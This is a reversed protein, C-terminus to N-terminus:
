NLPQLDLSEDASDHDSASGDSPLMGFDVAAAFTRVHPTPAKLFLKAQLLMATKFQRCTLFPHEATRAPSAAAHKDATDAFYQRATKIMGACYWCRVDDQPGQPVSGLFRPSSLRPRHDLRSARSDRDVTSSSGVRGDIRNRRSIRPSTPTLAAFTLVKQSDTRLHLSLSPSGVISQLDLLIQSIDSLKPHAPQITILSTGHLDKAFMDVDVRAGYQRRWNQVLSLLGLDGSQELTHLVLTSLLQHLFTVPFEGRVQAFNEVVLHLTDLYQVLGAPKLNQAAAIAQILWGARLTDPPPTESLSLLAWLATARGIPVVERWKLTVLQAKQVYHPNREIIDFFIADFVSDMQQLDSIAKSRLAPTRFILESGWGGLVPVPFLGAHAHLFQMDGTSLASATDRLARASSSSIETDMVQRASAASAEDLEGPTKRRFQGSADRALPQTLHLDGERLSPSTRLSTWADHRKKLVTLSPELLKTLYEDDKIM